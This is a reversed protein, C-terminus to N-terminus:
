LNQTRLRSVQATVLKIIYDVDAETTYRGLSLRLASFALRNSVGIAKLVHSPASSGSSCASTSSYALDKLALALSLGEVGEFSINLNGSIRQHEDGHLHVDPIKKLHEWLLERLALIRQCEELMIEKAISFAEGMGVIQHTALTGARLGQEHGGGHILPELRIRPSHNVYLVGIGKPGYVKHGSFSMLSINMAKVDVPTKGASQAGDVHFIIGRDKLLQGIASIDQIVGIENNVHMISVFITDPRLAKELTELLILGNSEPSLRTVEFGERELQELSDLVSKHETKLTIIHKGKRQYFHCAGKIALNNSETAGSTWVIEAPDAHILSAVQERAEAVALAATQGYIHSSSAPNGFEGDFTMYHMMKKAVREDVPTTAMYDLYIPKNM